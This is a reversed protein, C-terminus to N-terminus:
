ERELVLRDDGFALLLARLKAYDAPSVIERQFSLTRTCTETGDPMSTVSVDTSGIENKTNSQGPLAIIKWGKLPEITCSVLLRCPELMIADAMTSREPRVRDIGSLSAEFPRPVALYVREGPRKESLKVTFVFAFAAGDRDLRQPNWSVLEAGGFLAHVHARVFDEAESGTGKMLYYPSFPGSLVATGSGTLGGNAGPKLVLDLSSWSESAGFDHPIVPGGGLRALGRGSLSPLLDHEFPAAPDLLLEDDSPLPRFGIVDRHGAYGANSVILAANFMEPVALDNELDKSWSKGATALVPEAEFDAARLMANLLVMRDLPTAYGSEYIRQADRPPAAFLGFPARVSSVCDLALRHVALIKDDLTRTDKMAENVIPAFFSASRSNDRIEAGIKKLVDGWGAATSYCVVPFYDGEWVGGDFPTRGAIDRVTWSRLGDAPKVPAPAGNLSASKLNSAGPGRIELVRVQVPDEASFIEVGSLWPSPTKDRIVYHLEAVCGKEIGVHTVVTEQWDAYDPAHDLAFPTTQNIGNKQTDVITGDRMYVRATVISLEQTAANFLIRPDGYRNIANDTFLMVARHRRKSIHNENDLTVVLSDFLVVADSGPYRAELATHNPLGPLARVEATSQARAPSGLIMVAGVFLMVIILAGHTNRM